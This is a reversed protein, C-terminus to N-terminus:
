YGFRLELGNSLGDLQPGQPTLRGTIAQTRVTAGALFSAVPVRFPLSFLGGSPAGGLSYILSTPAVHLTCSSGPLALIGRELAFEISVLQSGLDVGSVEFRFNPNGLTPRGVASMQPIPTGPSTTCGQGYSRVSALFGPEFVHPEYGVGAGTIPDVGWAAFYVRGNVVTLGAPDSGAGPYVDQLLYTPQGAASAECLYPEEDNPAGAVFLLAPGSPVEVVTLEPAGYSGSRITRGLASIQRATDTAPDYEYIERDFVCYVLSGIARFDRPRSFFGGPGIGTVPAVGTGQVRVAESGAASSVTLFLEGAASALERPSSSSPGPAIDVAVAMASAPDYCWLDEGESTTTAGFYVLNGVATFGYPDSGDVGPELDGLPRCSGSNPDFIWPERGGSSTRASFVLGTPTPTLREPNSSGAGPALDCVLVTGQTTGDTAWLERGRIGDDASFYVRDGLPTLDSPNSPGNSSPAPPNNIDKVLTIAGNQLVRFLEGSLGGSSMRVLVDGQFPALDGAGVRAALVVPPLGPTHRVLSESGSGPSHSTYHVFLTDTGLPVYQGPAGTSNPNLDGVLSVPGQARLNPVVASSLVLSAVLFRNMGRFHGPM